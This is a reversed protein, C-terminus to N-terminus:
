GKRSLGQNDCSHAVPPSNHQRSSPPGHRRTASLVMDGPQLNLSTLQWSQRQQPSQFYDTSWKQWFQQLQQHYAQWRSLRNCKVNTYHAFPLQSLPEGILFHGPSLYTPYFPDDSLACLPRSNLCAEIETLLTCLEEYTAIHSGLTRRLHYKM